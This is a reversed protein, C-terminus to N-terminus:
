RRVEHAWAANAALSREAARHYRPAWDLYRALVDSTYDIRRSPDADVVLKGESLVRHAVIPDRLTLVLLDVPRGAVAELRAALDMLERRRTLADAHRDRLLVAVDLDSDDRAEGRPVSGFIWAAAIEPCAELERRAAAFESV